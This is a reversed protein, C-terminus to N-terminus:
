MMQKGLVPKPNGNNTKILMTSASSPPVLGAAPGASGLLLGGAPEALQGPVPRVPVGRKMSYVCSAQGDYYMDKRCQLQYVHCDNKEGQSNCDSVQHKNTELIAKSVQPAATLRETEELRSLRTSMPQRVLPSESQNWYM